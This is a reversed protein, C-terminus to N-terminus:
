LEIIDFSFETDAVIATTAAAGNYERWMLKITKSGVLGADILWFFNFVRTSAGSMAWLGRTADGVRAGDIELDMEFEDGAFKVLILVKGGGFTMTQSTNTADVEVFTASTTTYGAVSAFHYTVPTRIFELNENLDNLKSEDPAENATFDAVTNYAM